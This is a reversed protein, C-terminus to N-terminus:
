KKETNGGQPAGGHAPTTSPTTTTKVTGGSQTMGPAATPAKNPTNGGTAGGPTPSTQSSKSNPSENSGVPASNPRPVAGAIQANKADVAQRTKEAEARKLEEMRANEERTNQDTEQQARQASKLEELEREKTRIIEAQDPRDAGEGGQRQASSLVAAAQDRDYIPKETATPMNIVLRGSPPLTYTATDGNILQEGRHITFTSDGRKHQTEVLASLEKESDEKIFEVKVRM